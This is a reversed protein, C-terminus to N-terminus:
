PVKCFVHGTTGKYFCSLQTGLHSALELCGLAKRMSGKLDFGRFSIKQPEKAKKHTRSDSQAQCLKVIHKSLQAKFHLLKKRNLNWKPSGKLVATSWWGKKQGSFILHSGATMSSGFCIRQQSEQTTGWNGTLVSLMRYKGQHTSTMYKLQFIKTKLFSM